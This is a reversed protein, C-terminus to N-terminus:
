NKNGTLYAITGFSGWTNPEWGFQVLEEKKGKFPNNPNKFIRM